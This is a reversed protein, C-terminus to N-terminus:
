DATCGCQASIHRQYMNAHGFMVLFLWPVDPLEIPLELRGCSGLNFRKM